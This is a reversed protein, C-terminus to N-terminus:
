RCQEKSKLTELPVTGRLTWQVAGLLPRGRWPLWIGPWWCSCLHSARERCGVGVWRSM